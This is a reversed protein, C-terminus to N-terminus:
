LPLQLGETACPQPPPPACPETTGLPLLVQGMATSWAPWLQISLLRGAVKLKACACSPVEPSCRLGTKCCPHIAQPFPMATPLM